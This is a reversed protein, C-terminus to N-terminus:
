NRILELAFYSPIELGPCGELQTEGPAHTGRVLLLRVPMWHAQAQRTKSVDLEMEVSAAKWPLGRAKRWVSEGRNPSLTLVQHGMVHRHTVHDYRSSIAEMKKGRRAKITDDLVVVKRRSSGLEQPTYLAKATRWDFQRWDIDEHRLFDNLVDNSARSFLGLAERRFIAISPVNLWRWVRLM